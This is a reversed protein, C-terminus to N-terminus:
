SSDVTGVCGDSSRRMRARVTGTQRHHGVLRAEASKDDPWEGGLAVSDVAHVSRRDM